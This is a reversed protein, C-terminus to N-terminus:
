ISEIEQIINELCTDNTNHSSHKLYQKVIEICREREALQIKDKNMKNM